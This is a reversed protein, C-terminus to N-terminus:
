SERDEMLKNLRVINLKNQQAIKLKNQQAVTLKKQAYARCAAFPIVEVKELGLMRIVHKLFNTKKRSADMLTVPMTKFYIKLPIGPFGGGTGLDLLRTTEEPFWPAPALSDLYHKIAM